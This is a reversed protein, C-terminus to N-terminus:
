QEDNRRVTVCHFSVWSGRIHFNIGDIVGLQTSRLLNAVALLIAENELLGMTKEKHLPPSVMVCLSALPLPSLVPIENEMGSDVADM